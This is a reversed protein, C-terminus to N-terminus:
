LPPTYNRPGLGGLLGLRAAKVSGVAEVEELPRLGQM